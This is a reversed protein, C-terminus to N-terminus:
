RARILEWHESARVGWTVGGIMGVLGGLLVGTWGCDSTSCETTAKEGLLGAIMGLTSFVFPAVSARLASQRIRPVEPRQFADGAVVAVATSPEGENAVFLTDGRRDSVRGVIRAHPATSSSYRVRDGIRVSDVPPNPAKRGVTFGAVAGVPIAAFCGTLSAAAVSCAM